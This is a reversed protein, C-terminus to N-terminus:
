SCRRVRQRDSYIQNIEKSLFQPADGWVASFNVGGKEIVNGNQIVRTRGGGGGEREWKDETFKASGDALELGSCIRDQLGEFWKAIENKM